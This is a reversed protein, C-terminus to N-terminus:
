DNLVEVKADAMWDNTDELARQSITHLADIFAPVFTGPGKVDERRTAYEAAIEFLLIAAIVAVFKDERFAALCAAITSGLTCGSQSPTLM